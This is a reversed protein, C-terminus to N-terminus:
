YFWKKSHCFCKRKKENSEGRQMYYYFGRVPASNPKDQLRTGQTKYFFALACSAFACFGRRMGARTSLYHFEKYHISSSSYRNINLDAKVNLDAKSYAM